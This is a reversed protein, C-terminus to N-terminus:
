SLAFYFFRSNYLFVEFHNNKSEFYLSKVDFFCDLKNTFQLLVQIICAYVDVQSRSFQSTPSSLGGQLLFMLCKFLLDSISHFSSKEEPLFSRLSAISQYFVHDQGTSEWLSVPYVKNGKKRRIKGRKVNNAQLNSAIAAFYSESVFKFLNSTNQFHFASPLFRNMEFIDFSQSPVSAVPEVAKQKVRSSARLNVQDEELRRKRPAGILDEDSKIPTEATSKLDSSVGDFDMIDVFEICVTSSLNYKQEPQEFDADFIDIGFILSFAKLAEFSLTSLTSQANLLIFYTNDSQKQNSLIPFRQLHPLNSYMCTLIDKPSYTQDLFRSLFYISCFKPDKFINQSFKM